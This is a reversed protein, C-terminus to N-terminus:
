IWIVNIHYNMPQLIGNIVPSLIELPERNIENVASWPVISTLEKACETYWNGKPKIPRGKRTM